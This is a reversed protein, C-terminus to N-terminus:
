LSFTFALEEVPQHARNYYQVNVQEGSHEILAYSPIQIPGRPQSISGPNLYLVGEVVECGIQHTHGFFVMTAQNAQAEFALQTLGFRVNALHGHTIFIKDKGTDVWEKEVFGPGFDCNGKVVHFHTWLQDEPSLESDGCHFFFDVKTQYRAVLDALIERDGHNDSVVLYNM